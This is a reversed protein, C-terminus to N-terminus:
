SQVHACDVAFSPFLVRIIKKMLAFPEQLTVCAADVKKKRKREEAKKNMDESWLEFFYGPDTYFKLSAKGDDRFEDFAALNPPKACKDYVDALAAPLSDRSLVQQDYLHSSRYTKYMAMDSINVATIPCSHLCTHFAAFNIMIISEGPTFRFSSHM